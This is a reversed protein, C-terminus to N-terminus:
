KEGKEIIEDLQSKLDEVTPFCSTTSCLEGNRGGVLASGDPLAAISYITNEFGYIEEPEWERDKLTFQKLEGDEGGVLVSGDPLAAISFISGDFGEIREGLRIEASIEPNKEKFDDLYKGLIEDSAAGAEEGLKRVKVVGRGNENLADLKQGLAEKLGKLRDIDARLEECNM